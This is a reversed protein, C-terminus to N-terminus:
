ARRAFICSARTIFGDRIGFFEDFGQKTPGHTFAAGLHGQRIAGQDDKFFILVDAAASCAAVLAVVLVRCM